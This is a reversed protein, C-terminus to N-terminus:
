AELASVQELLDVSAVLLDDIADACNDVLMDLLGELRVIDCLGYALDRGYVPTDWAERIVMLVHNLIACQVGVGQNAVKLQNIFGELKTSLTQYTLKLNHRHKIQNFGHPFRFPYKSCFSSGTSADDEDPSPPGTSCCSDTDKELCPHSKSSLKLYLPLENDDEDRDESDDKLLTLFNFCLLYVLYCFYINFILLPNLITHSYYHM